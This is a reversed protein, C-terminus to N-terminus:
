DPLDAITQGAYPNVLVLRGNRRILVDGDQRFPSSVIVDDGDLFEHTKRCEPFSWFEIPGCREVRKNSSDAYRMHALMLEDASTTGLSVSAKTRVTASPALSVFEWWYWTVGALWIALILIGAFRKM